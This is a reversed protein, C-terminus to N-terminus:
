SRTMGQRDATVTTFRPDQPHALMNSALRRRSGQLPRGITVTSILRAACDRYRGSTIPLHERCPWSFPLYAAPASYMQCPPTTPPRDNPRLTCSDRDSNGSDPWPIVARLFLGCGDTLSPHHRHSLGKHYKPTVRVNFSNSTRCNPTSPAQFM